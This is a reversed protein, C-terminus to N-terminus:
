RRLKWSLKKKKGFFSNWMAHPVGLSFKSNISFLFVYITMFFTWIGSITSFTSLIDEDSESARVIELGSQAFVQLNCYFSSSSKQGLFIQIGLRSLLDYYDTGTKFNSWILPFTWLSYEHTKMVFTHIADLYIDDTINGVAYIDLSLGSDTIILSEQQFYTAYTPHSANKPSVYKLGFRISQWRNKL